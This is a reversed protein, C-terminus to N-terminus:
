FKIEIPKAAGDDATFGTNPKFGFIKAVLSGPFSKVASNYNAVVENFDKRAVKIRRETGELQVQLGMFASTGKLEPYSEVTVLLKNTAAALANQANVKNNINSNTLNTNAIENAKARAAAIDTFINQEFNALGKVVNVITPILDVRRQYANNVENWKNNVMEQKAVFGNYTTISYLIVVAVIGVLGFTVIRKNNM